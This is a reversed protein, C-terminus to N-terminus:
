LLLGLHTKGSHYQGYDCPMLPWQIILKVISYIFLLAPRLKFLM